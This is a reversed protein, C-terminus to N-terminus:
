SRGHEVLFVEWNHESKRPNRIQRDLVRSKKTLARVMQLLM